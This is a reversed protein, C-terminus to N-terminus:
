RANRLDVISSLTVSARNESQKAVISVGVRTITSLALGTPTLPSSSVNDNYYTFSSNATDVNKVLVAWGSTPTTASAANAKCISLSDYTLRVYDLSTGALRYYTRKCKGSRDEDMMLTSATAMRLPDSARLDRSLRDIATRLQASSTARAQDQRTTKMSTVVGASVVSGVIGVMFVAVLLEVLSYGSDEGREARRTLM